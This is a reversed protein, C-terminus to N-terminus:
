RFCWGTHECEANILRQSFQVAGGSNSQGGDGANPTHDDEITSDAPPGAADNVESSTESVDEWRRAEIPLEALVTASVNIASAGALSAAANLSTGGHLVVESVEGLGVYVRERALLLSGENAEVEYEGPALRLVLFSGDKKAEVMQERIAGPDGDVLEPDVEWLVIQVAAASNGFPFQVRGAVAGDVATQAAAGVSLALWAATGLRLGALCVFIATKSRPKVARRHV